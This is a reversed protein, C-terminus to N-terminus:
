KKRVRFRLEQGEGPHVALLVNGSLSCWAEMDGRASPDDVRVELVQGSTMERLKSKIAPTLLACTSGNQVGATYFVLLADCDPMEDPGPPHFGSCVMQIDFVRSGKVQCYLQQEVVFWKGEERLLFRYFIGLRNGIWGVRSQQVQFQSCAGFWKQVRAQLDAANDFRTYKGPSLIQSSVMPHCARGLREFDGETIARIWDEGMQQLRLREAQADNTNVQLEIVIGGAQWDESKHEAARAFCHRVVCSVISLM